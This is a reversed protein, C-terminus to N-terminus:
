ASLCTFVVNDAVLASANSHFSANPPHTSQTSNSKWHSHSKPRKGSSAAAAAKKELRRKIVFEEPIFVDMELVPPKQNNEELAEEDVADVLTNKGRIGNVLM